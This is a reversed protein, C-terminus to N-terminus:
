IEEKIKILGTFHTLYTRFQAESLNLSKALTMSGSLLCRLGESKLDQCKGDIYFASHFCEPRTFPIVFCTLTGVGISSCHPSNFRFPSPPHRYDHFTVPLFPGTESCSYYKTPPFLPYSISHWTSPVAHTFDHFYSTYHLDPSSPTTVFMLLICHIVWFTASWFTSPLSHWAWSKIQLSHFAVSSKRLLTVRVIYLPTLALLMHFVSYWGHERIKSSSVEEDEM